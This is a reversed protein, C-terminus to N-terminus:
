VTQCIKRVEKDIRYVDAITKVHQIPSRKLCRDILDIIDTYKIENKKFKEFACENAANLIIGLSSHPNKIAQYGWKIPKSLNIKKLEYQSNILNIKKITNLCTKFKTIVMKIPVEMSPMYICAFTSNKYQAIAHVQSQPHHLVVINTTKFYWYCEIIEFCKNMLTSSDISIKPGM